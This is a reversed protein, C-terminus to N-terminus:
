GGTKRRASLELLFGKIAEGMIRTANPDDNCCILHGAVSDIWVVRADPIGKVQTEVYQPPVFQDHPSAIFLTKAKISHL